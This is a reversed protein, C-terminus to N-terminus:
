AESGRGHSEAALQELLEAARGSDIAAAAQTAGEKLNDVRGAVYLAASSNALVVQRAPSAQGALLDRIIAASAAPGDAALQDITVEPLDFDAPTWVTERVQGAEALSVQTPGGLTVEDLGDSGWVVAARRTGLAALAAALKPRLEDRAVGILQFPAGAPNALPGLVNFITRFGLERRVPGVHKMAAHLLPAFCFAIGLRNLCATVTEVDAEINVGLEALVDASGSRSTMARNGHKAVPLGAAATVLAAATSINFTGSGDGGTGCTDIFQEHQCAIRTMQGRMATAAGTIEEATEGKAALGTLLAAMQVTTAQGSMMETVAASLNDRSLNDGAVLRGLLTEILPHERAFQALRYPDIKSTM